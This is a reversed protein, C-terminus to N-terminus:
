FPVDNNSAYIVPPTKTVKAMLKMMKRQWVYHRGLCIPNQKHAVNSKYWESLHLNLVQLVEQCEDLNSRDYPNQITLEYM